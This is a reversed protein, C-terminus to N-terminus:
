GELTFPSKLTSLYSIMLDRDEELLRSANSIVFYTEPLSDAIQISQLVSDRYSYINREEGIISGYLKRAHTSYSSLLPIKLNVIFM